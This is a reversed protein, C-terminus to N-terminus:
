SSPFSTSSRLRGSLRSSHQHVPEFTLPALLCVWAGFRDFLPGGIAGAAFQLFASLSGIWAINDASEDRLQHTMYYEQFVGFSNAYGLASFFIFAAGTAVLWARPGGDPVEGFNPPINEDGLEAAIISKQGKAKHSIEFETRATAM